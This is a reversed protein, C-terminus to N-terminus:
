ASSPMRSEGSHSSNLRTSKRDPISTISMLMHCSEDIGLRGAVDPAEQADTETQGFCICLDHLTELILVLSKEAFYSASYCFRLAPLNSRVVRIGKSPTLTGAFGPGFLTPASISGGGAM